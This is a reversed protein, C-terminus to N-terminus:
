EDHSRNSEVEEQDEQELKANRERQKVIWQELADLSRFGLLAEQTPEDRNPHIYYKGQGRGTKYPGAWWAGGIEFLTAQIEVLKNLQRHRRYANSQGSPGTYVRDWEYALPVPNREEDVTAWYIQYGTPVPKVKFM